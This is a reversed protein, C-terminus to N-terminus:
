PSWKSVMMWIALVSLGFAPVGLAFWWRNARHFAAPLPTGAAAAADALKRMRVQLFAAPLWLLGTVVYTGIGWPVWGTTWPLHYTAVLWVGTIPLLIGAPITFVADAWVIERQAWAVIKPDGTRDARLKHWAILLGGGFFFTAALVHLLKVAAILM